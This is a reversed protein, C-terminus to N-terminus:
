FGCGCPNNHLSLSLCIMYHDTCFGPKISSSDIVFGQINPFLGTQYLSTTTPTPSLHVMDHKPAYTAM